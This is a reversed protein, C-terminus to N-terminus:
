KILFNLYKEFFVVILRLLIILFWKVLKVFFFRYVGWYWGVLCVFCLIKDVNLFICCIKWKSLWDSRNLLLWNVFIMLNVRIGVWFFVISVGYFWVVCFWM